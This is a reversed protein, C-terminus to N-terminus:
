PRNARNLLDQVQQRTVVVTTDNLNLNIDCVRVQARSCISLAEQLVAAAKAKQGQALYAGGLKWGLWFRTCPVAVDRQQERRADRTELRCRAADKLWRTAEEMWAMDGGNGAAVAGNVAHNMLNGRRVDMDAADPRQTGCKLAAVSLNVAKKYDKLTQPACLGSYWAASQAAYRLLTEDKEGALLLWELNDYCRLYDAPDNSTFNRAPQLAYKLYEELSSFERGDRKITMGTRPQTATQRPAPQSAPQPAAVAPEQFGNEIYAAAAPNMQRIKELTEKVPNKQYVQVAFSRDSRIMPMLGNKELEKWWKRFNAKRAIEGAVVMIGIGVLIVVIGLLIEAEFLLLLGMLMVFYGAFNVVNALISNKYIRIRAM